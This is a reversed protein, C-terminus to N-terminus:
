QPIPLRRLIVSEHSAPRIPIQELRQPPHVRLMSRGSDFRAEAPIPKEVAEAPQKADPTLQTEVELPVPLVTLEIEIPKLLPVPPWDAILLFGEITVKKPHSDPKIVKMMAATVEELMVRLTQPPGDVVNAHLILEKKENMSFDFQSTQAFSKGDQKLVAVIKGREPLPLNSKNQIVMEKQSGETVVIAYALKGAVPDYQPVAVAKFDTKKWAFGEANAEKPTDKKAPAVAPILLHNSVGYPTAVHLDVVARKGDGPLSEILQNANPPVTVQMIRRSLLQFPVSRGGAIVRTDHVSFNTGVLFVTTGFCTGAANPTGYNPVGEAPLGGEKPCKDEGCLCGVVSTTVNIGPAGYWGNLSPALDTVGSNFMEFGGLTNEYPISVMMSQLPLRSEIQEVSKLLWAVDEARYYQPSKLNPMCTAISQWVKSIQMSDHMTLEKHRPNTLKFWNARSDFTVHSVFSPMLVVATVERIGPELRRDNLLAHDSQGLGLATQAMAGVTSPVRPSQFRPYFRWGFVNQGHAFAVTKRNLDITELDLEMRRAFNMATRASVNGSAVGAAMALQMERRQSFVEAINQEDNVPDLAFVHVPWRAQVYQNFLMTAESDRPIPHFCELWREPAPFAGSEASVKRMDELLRDNLLASNVLICWALSTTTTFTARPFQQAIDRFYDDRIDDISRQRQNGELREIRDHYKEYHPGSLFRRRQRVAEVLEETCYADWLFQTDPRSLFDYASNLEWSLFSEIDALHPAHQNVPDRQFVNQGAVAVVHMPTVGYVDVVETPTIAAHPQSSRGSVMAGTYTEPVVNNLSTTAAETIKADAKALWELQTLTEFREPHDKMPRIKSVNLNFKPLMEEISIEGRKYQLYLRAKDLLDKDDLIKRGPLALIDVVDNIVLNRFTSPMLQDTLHAEATLTIEAGFGKQTKKGPLVSIPIRVLNLSYGPSDATDDGENIRRLENLLNLYRFKQELVVTPELSISEIKGNALSSGFSNIVRGPATRSIAGEPVEMVEIKNTLSPATGGGSASSITMAASLYSQDSRRLAGNLTEQFLGLDKELEREVEQRHKTLRAEGWVDPHKPVITGYTDIMAELYDIEKAVKEVCGDEGTKPKQQQFLHMFFLDGSYAPSGNSLVSMLVSLVSAILLRSM